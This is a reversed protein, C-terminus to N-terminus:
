MLKMIYSSCMRGAWSVGTELGGIENSTHISSPITHAHDIRMMAHHDIITLLSIRANIKEKAIPLGETPWKKLKLPVCQIHAMLKGYQLHVTLSMAQHRQLLRAM